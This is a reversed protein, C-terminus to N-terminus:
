ATALAGIEAKKSTRLYIAFLVAWAADGIAAVMLELTCVGNFYGYLCIAFIGAKAIAGIVVMGRYAIADVAVMFYGLGFMAVAFCLIFFVLLIGPETVDVGTALKIGHGPFLMGLLGALGNFLGALLFLYKWFKTPSKNM